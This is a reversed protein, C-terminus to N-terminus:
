VEEDESDEVQDTTIREAALDEHTKHNRFMVLVGLDYVVKLSGATLFAVWFLKRTILTGTVFPGMSQSATKVVNIIGMVATRETPLIVAALFASRPGVDMSQTCARLILFAMSPLLSSPLPILALFIASPLHTFVMTKVNGIRKSISSAVLQSGSAIITSVFFLTGLQGEKLGFKYNFFYSVWSLPALGSAFSDMGFLICLNIVVIRSAPSIAPIWSKKKKQGANKPANEGDNEHEGERDEDYDQMLQTRAQDPSPPPKLEVEVKHSLVVSLAFKALGLVTYCYFVSRYAEIDTFGASKQLQEVSWGTTMIGFATGAM